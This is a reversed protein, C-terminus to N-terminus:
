STLLILFITSLQRVVNGEVFWTQLHHFCSNEHKLKSVRLEHACILGSSLIWTSFTAEMPGWFSVFKISIDCFHCWNSIWDVLKLYPVIHFLSLVDLFILLTLWFFFFLLYLQRVIKVGVFVTSSSPVSRRNKTHFKIKGSKESIKWLSYKPTRYGGNEFLFWPLTTQKEKPFDPKGIPCAKKQM